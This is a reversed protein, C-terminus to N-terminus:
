LIHDACARVEAVAEALPKGQDLTMNRGIAEARERALEAVRRLIKGRELPSTHRWGGFARQAAALAAELDRRTAHPLRGLVSGDAPNTVDQERRGEGSLWQGDIFLALKEYSDEDIVSMPEISM